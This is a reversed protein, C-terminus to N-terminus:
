DYKDWNDFDDIVKVRPVHHFPINNRARADFIKLEQMETEWNLKQVGHLSDSEHHHRHVMNTQLHVFILWNTEIFGCINQM